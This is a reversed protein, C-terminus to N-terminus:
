KLFKNYRSELGKQSLHSNSNEPLLSTIVRTLHLSVRVIEGFVLQIEKPNYACGIRNYIKGDMEFKNNKIRQLTAHSADQCINKYVKVLGKDILKKKKLYEFSLKSRDLSKRVQRYEDFKKNKIVYEAIALLGLVPRLLHLSDVKLGWLGVNISALISSLSDTFM